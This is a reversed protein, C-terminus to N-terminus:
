ETALKLMKQYEGVPDFRLKTINVGHNDRLREWLKNVKGSEDFQQRTILEGSVKARYVTAGVTLSGGKLLSVALAEGLELGHLAADSELRAIAQALDACQAEEALRRSELKEAAARWAIDLDSGPPYPPAVNRRPPPMERLRKWLKRRQRDTMNEFDFIEDDSNETEVEDDPQFDTIKEDETSNNVSSWADGSPSSHLDVGLGAADDAGTKQSAKARITWKVLRTCIRSAEGLRPSWVGYVKEPIECYDNMEDAPQYALRVVYDKRPILVGGQYNIYSAFCGVDAAACVADMAPDSLLAAGRKFTNAIKQQATLQNSLKRLERYVTVPPQGIPQFQRIRHLSAWAM